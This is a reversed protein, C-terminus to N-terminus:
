RWILQRIQLRFRSYRWYQYIYLRQLIYTQRLKSRRINQARESLRYKGSHRHEALKLWNEWRVLGKPWRMPYFLMGCQLSYFRIKKLTNIIGLAKFCLNKRHEVGIDTTSTIPLLRREKPAAMM